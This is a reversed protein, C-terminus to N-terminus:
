SWISLTPWIAMAVILLVAPYVHITDIDLLLLELETSRRMGAENYDYDLTADVNRTYNKRRSASGGYSFLWVLSAIIYFAVYSFGHLYSSIAVFGTFTLYDGLLIFLFAVIIRVTEAKHFVVYLFAYFYAYIYKRWIVVHAFILVFSGLLALVFM